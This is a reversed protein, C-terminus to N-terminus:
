PASVGKSNVIETSARRRRLGLLERLLKSQVKNPLGLRFCGEDDGDQALDWDLAKAKRKVAGWKRSSRTAVYMLYSKDDFSQCQGNKGRITWRDCEDKRVNRPSIELANALLDIRQKDQVLEVINQYSTGVGISLNSIRHERSSM